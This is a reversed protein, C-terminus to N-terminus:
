KFARILGKRFYPASFHRIDYHFLMHGESFEYKFNLSNLLKSIREADIAHHYTCCAIKLNNANLLYDSAGSLTDYEYGEIDMKIFTGNHENDNLLTRLTVTNSSDENSVLKNIITCKDQYPAFTAQLASLWTSDSEVLIVKKAKDIVDLAFLAEACGLDVVTDGAQVCFSGTQYQHPSKSRFNGGLLNEKEIYDRYKSKATYLDVDAPFFLKKNNHIVFPLGNEYGGDISGIRKISEYPFASIGNQQIYKLEAQFENAFSPNNNAYEMITQVQFDNIADYLSSIDQKLNAIEQRHQEQIDSAFMEFLNRVFYSLRPKRM